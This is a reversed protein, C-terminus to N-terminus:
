AVSSRYDALMGGGNFREDVIIAEKYAQPYFYRRFYNFGTGGTDPVYVYAVRGGTAQDVKQLNGERDIIATRLNHTFTGAEPLYSLGFGDAFRQLMQGSTDPDTVFDWTSAISTTYM